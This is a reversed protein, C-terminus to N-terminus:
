AEEQLMEGQPGGEARSGWHTPGGQEAEGLLQVGAATGVPRVGSIYMKLWVLFSEETCDMEQPLPQPLASPSWLFLLTTSHKFNFM